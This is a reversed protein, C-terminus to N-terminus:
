LFLIEIEFLICVFSYFQWCKPKLLDYIKQYNTYSQTHLTHDRFSRGIFAQRQLNASRKRSSRTTDHYDLSISKDFYIIFQICGSLFYDLSLWKVSDEYSEIVLTRCQTAGFHRWDVELLGIM